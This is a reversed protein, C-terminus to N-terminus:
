SLPDLEVWVGGNKASTYMADLIIRSKMGEEPRTIFPTGLRVASAFADSAQRWTRKVPFPADKLWKEKDAYHIQEGEPGGSSYSFAGASGFIDIKTYWSPLPYNTTSFYRVSLQNGYDWEGYGIDETEIAHMQTQMMARVRKPMGLLYQMRDIEHVGQNCMAGGGDMEWTGRWAGNEDYYSQTRTVYLSVQAALMHGFWGEEIAKKLSLTVEEMRMDFDVGFLRGSEEATKVLRRCNRSNVDMPKTTLVHKGARLCKESVEAHLGTPVVTYMVEVRDDQLFDDMNTSYRVGLEEGVQRAREERIDVVGYLECGETEMIQRARFSGMGLGVVVFRVPDDRYSRPFSVVERVAEEISTMAEKPWLKLIKEYTRRTCEEPSYPSGSPNHTEISVPIDRGAAKVGRLVREWPVKTGELEELASAAKVHVIRARSLSKRFYDLVMESNNEFRHMDNYVDWAMGWEPVGLADVFSLVEEYTQGCNEFAFILGAEKARDAIPAFMQLVRNMMDPRVALQGSLERYEGEPQWYNFVRVLRCGLIDAARIIGELKREEEARVDAGPLHVKCLSTELAGTKLGLLDLKEKLAILEEETQYEIGKGNINGRLDVYGCKWEAIRPLALAADMFLEDSFVSISM